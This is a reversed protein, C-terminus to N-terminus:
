GGGGGARGGGGRGARASCKERGRGGCVDSHSQNSQCIRPPVGSAPTVASLGNKTLVRRKRSTLAAFPWDTVTLSVKQLVGRQEISGAARNGRGINLVPSLSGHVM